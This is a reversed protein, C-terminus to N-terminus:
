AYDDVGGPFVVSRLLEPAPGSEAPTRNDGGSFSGPQGQASQRADQGSHGASASQDNMLSVKADDLRLGQQEFSQALRPLMREILESTEAQQTQFQVKGHDGDMSLQVQISGLEEPHLHITATQIGGGALITIRAAFAQTWAPDDLAHQTVTFSTPLRNPASASSRTERLLGLIDLESRSPEDADLLAQAAGPEASVSALWQQQFLTDAAPATTKMQAQEGQGVLAPALLPALKADFAHSGTAGAHAFEADGAETLAASSVVNATTAASTTQASQLMTALQQQWDALETVPPLPDTTLSPLDNGLLPLTDGSAQLEAFLSQTSLAEGQEESFRSLAQAQISAFAEPQGGLLSLQRAALLQNFPVDGQSGSLESAGSRSKAATSDVLSLSPTIPTLM